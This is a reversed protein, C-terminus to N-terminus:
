QKLCSILMPEIHEALWKNGSINFHGLGDFMLQHGFYMHQSLDLIVVNGLRKKIENSFENGIYRGVMEGNKNGYQKGKPIVVLLVKGGRREVTELSNSVLAVTNHWDPYSRKFYEFDTKTKFYFSDKYRNHYDVVMACVSWVTASYYSLWRLFKLNNQRFEIKSVNNQFDKLTSRSIDNGIFFLYIVVAKELDRPLKEIVLHYQETGYGPVGLNNFYLNHSLGVSKALFNIWVNKDDVAQGFCFSDGVAYISIKSDGLACTQDPINRRGNAISVFYRGESTEMDQCASDILSYGLESNREFIADIPRHPKYGLLRLVVELLVLGVILSIFVMLIKVAINKWKKELENSLNM